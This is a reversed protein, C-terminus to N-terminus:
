STAKLKLETTSSQVRHNSHNHTTEEQIEPAVPVQLSFTTNHVLATTSHLGSSLAVKGKQSM